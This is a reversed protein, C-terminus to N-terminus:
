MLNNLLLYIAQFHRLQTQTHNKILEDISVGVAQWEAILQLLDLLLEYLIFGPM